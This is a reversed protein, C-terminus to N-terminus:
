VRYSISRPALIHAYFAGLFDAKAETQLDLGLMVGGSGVYDVLAAVLDPDNHGYNLASCGALFDIYSRGDSATLHSGQASHFTTDFSRCYSRVESEHRFANATRTPSAAVAQINM